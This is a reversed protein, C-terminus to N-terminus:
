QVIGNYLPSQLACHVLCLIGALIYMASQVKGISIQGEMDFMSYQVIGMRM